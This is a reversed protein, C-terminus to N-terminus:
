TKVVGWPQGVNAVLDRMNDADILKSRFRAENRTQDMARPPHWLHRAQIERNINQGHGSVRLRTLLDTDEWSWNDEFGEDWGGIDLLWQKGYLAIWPAVWGVTVFDEVGPFRPDQEHHVIGVSIVERPREEHDALMQAVVDTEFWMEPESTIVLECDTNKIGVNRAHSCISSGLNRTYLYRVPCTFGKVRRVVERTADDGGDDIILVEDPQTLQTMRNLSKELLGARNYTTILLCTDSM